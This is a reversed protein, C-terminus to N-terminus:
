AHSSFRLEVHLLEKLGEPVLSTEPQEVEHSFLFNANAVEYLYQAARLWLDRAMKSIQPISADHRGPTLALPHVIADDHRRM